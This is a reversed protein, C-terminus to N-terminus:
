VSYQEKLVNLHHTAHGAIIYGIANVSISNKNSIGTRELQEDDFSRFLMQTGKRVVELEGKLEERSRNDAKSAAAYINEDFSPLSQTEGRAICLARYCFIREADILHQVMEKISWKGETYRFDWKDDSINQLFSRLKEANNTIAEAASDENVLKVYGHYFEPITKLDPKAM